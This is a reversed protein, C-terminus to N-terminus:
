DRLTIKPQNNEWVHYCELHFSLSVSVQPLHFFSFSNWKGWFSFSNWKGWTPNSGVASQVSARVLQAVLAAWSAPDLDFMEYVQIFLSVVNYFETYLHLGPYNFVVLSVLVLGLYICSLVRSPFFSFFFSLCVRVHVHLQYM